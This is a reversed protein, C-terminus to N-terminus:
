QGSTLPCTSYNCGSVHTQVRSYHYRGVIGPRLLCLSASLLKLEAQIVSLSGTVLGGLWGEFSCLLVFGLQSRLGRKGVATFDSGTGKDQLHPPVAPFDLEDTLM